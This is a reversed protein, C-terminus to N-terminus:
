NRDKQNGHCCKNCTLIKKWLVRVDRNALASLGAIGWVSAFFESVIAIGSSYFERYVPKCCSAGYSGFTTICRSYQELYANYSPEQLRTMTFFLMVMWISFSFAVTFVGMQVMWDLRNMSQGILKTIQFHRKLMIGTVIPIATGNFICIIVSPLYLTILVFEDKPYCYDPHNNFKYRKTLAITVVHVLLPFLWCFISEFLHIRHKNKDFKGMGSVRLTTIYTLNIVAFLYWYIFAMVSYHFIAGQVNCPISTDIRSAFLSDHKCYFRQPLIQGSLICLSQTLVNIILYFYIIHPFDWLIGGLKIWTVIGLLSVVLSIFAGSTTLVRWGIFYDDGGPFYAICEPTCQTGNNIFRSICTTNKVMAGYTSSLARHSQNSYALILWSSYNHFSALAESANFPCSDSSSFTQLFTSNESLDRNFYQVQFSSILVAYLGVGISVIFLIWTALVICVIILYTLFLKLKYNYNAAVEIEHQQATISRAQPEPTTTEPETSHSKM